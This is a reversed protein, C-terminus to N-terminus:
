LVYAIQYETVRWHPVTNTTKSNLIAMPNTVTDKGFNKYMESLRAKVEDDSLESDGPLGEFRDKMLKYSVGSIAEKVKNYYQQSETDFSQLDIGLMVEKGASGGSMMMFTLGRSFTAYNRQVMMANKVGEVSKSSGIWTLLEIVRDAVEPDDLLPILHEESGQGYIGYLFVCILTPDLTMAHQPFFLKRDRNHLYFRDVLDLVRPDKDGAVKHVFNFLQQQNAAVVEDDPNLSFLATRAEERYLTDEDGEISMFYGIDLLLFDNPEEKSQEIRLQTALIPLVEKKSSKFFTWAEDLQKNYRELAASDSTVQISRILDLRRLVEQEIAPTQATGSSVAILILACHIFWAFLSHVVRNMLGRNSGQLQQLCVTGLLDCPGGAHPKAWAYM